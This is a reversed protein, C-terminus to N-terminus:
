WGGCSMMGTRMFACKGACHFPLARVSFNKVTDITAKGDATGPGLIRRFFDFTGFRLGYKLTLNMVFPVLGKYLAQWGEQAYIKRGADIMGKYRGSKDLQVRTKAVDMPQM